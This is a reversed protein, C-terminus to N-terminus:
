IAPLTLYYMKFIIHVTNYDGETVHWLVSQQTYGLM